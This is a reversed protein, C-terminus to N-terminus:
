RYLSAMEAVTESVREVLDRPGLVQVQAGLGLVQSTAMAISELPVVIRTWGPNKNDPQASALVTRAAM